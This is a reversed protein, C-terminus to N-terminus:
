LCCKPFNRSVHRLAYPSEGLAHIGTRGSSVAGFVRKAQVYFNSKLKKKKKKLLRLSKAGYFYGRGGGRGKRRGGGGWGEGGEGDWKETCNIVLGTNHTCILVAEAPLTRQKCTETLGAPNRSSMISVPSRLCITVSLDLKCIRYM